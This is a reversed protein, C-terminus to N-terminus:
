IRRPDELVSRAPLQCPASADTDRGYKRSSGVFIYLRQCGKGNCWSQGGGWHRSDKSPDRMSDRNSRVIRTDDHIQKYLEEERPANVRHISVMPGSASIGVTLVIARISSVGKSEVIWTGTLVPSCVLTAICALTLLVAGALWAKM